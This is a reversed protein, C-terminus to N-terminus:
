QPLDLYFVSSTKRLHKQCAPQLRRRRPCRSWRCRLPAAKPIPDNLCYCITPMWIAYIVRRNIQEFLTDNLHRTPIPIGVDAIRQTAVGTELRDAILQRDRTDVQRTLGRHIPELVPDVSSILIPDRRAKGIHRDGRILVRGVRNELLEFISMGIDGGHQVEIRVVYRLLFNTTTRGLLADECVLGPRRPDQYHHQRPRAM